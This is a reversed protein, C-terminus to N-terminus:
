IVMKDEVDRMAVTVGERAAAKEKMLDEWEAMDRRDM